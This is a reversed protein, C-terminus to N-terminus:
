DRDHVPLNRLRFRLRPRAEVGCWTMFVQMKVDHDKQLCICWGSVVVDCMGQSFKCIGSLEQTLFKGSWCSILMPQSM